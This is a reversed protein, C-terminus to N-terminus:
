LALKMYKAIDEHAQVQYEVPTDEVECRIDCFIFWHQLTYNKPAM